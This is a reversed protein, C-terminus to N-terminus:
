GSRAGKTSLAFSRIPKIGFEMSVIFFRGQSESEGSPLLWADNLSAVIVFQGRIEGILLDHIYRSYACYM